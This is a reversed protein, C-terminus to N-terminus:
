ALVKVGCNKSRSHETFESEGGESYSCFLVCPTMLIFVIGGRLVHVSLYQLKLRCSRVNETLILTSPSDEKKLVFM